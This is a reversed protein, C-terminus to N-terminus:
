SKREHIEESPEIEALKQNLEVQQGERCNLQKIKGSFPASLSYEMKMAEMVIIIKQAEVSDDLSVNVKLIKGPMPALIVGSSVGSAASVGSAKPRLDIAHTEGNIHIWLEHGILASKVSYLKENVLYKVSKM